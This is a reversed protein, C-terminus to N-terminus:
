QKKKKKKEMCLKVDGGNGHMGFAQILKDNLRYPQSIYLLYKAM